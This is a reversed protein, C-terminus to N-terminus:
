RRRVLAIRLTGWALLLAGLPVLVSRLPPVAGTMTCNAEFLDQPCGQYNALWRLDDINDGTWPKEYHDRLNKNNKEMKLERVTTPFHWRLVPEVERDKGRPNERQSRIDSVDKVEWVINGSAETVRGVVLGKPASAYDIRQGTTDIAYSFDKGEQATSVRESVANGFFPSLGSPDSETVPNGRAYTYPSLSWPDQPDPWLPDRTLFRGTFSDYWRARMWYLGSAGEQFVGWEGVWTFPQHHPGEHRVLAGYPAYAYTDTVAGDEGTLFRTTGLHDFHPFLAQPDEGPNEVLYVLKGDPAYVYFRVFHGNEKEAVLPRGPLAQHYFYETVGDPGQRRAVQGLATYDFSVGLGSSPMQYNRLRDAADWAYSREPDATRRGRADFTFGAATIKGAADHSWTRMEGVLFDKVDSPLREALATIQAAEDRSLELDWSGHTIRIITGDLNRGLTTSVGNSRSIRTVQGDDNRAFEMWGSSRDDTVRFLRGAADYTYGVTMSGGYTMQILRYRRDWSAGFTEGGMRTSTVLDRDEYQIEVPVSATKTLRGLADYTYELKLGDSFSRQTLRGEADYTRNEGTGGPYEIRELRGLPDYAYTWKAGLPDQIGTLRGMKTYTFSWQNKEQDTITTVKGLGNRAYAAEGLIPLVVKTLQGNGDYTLETKRGLPDSIKVPRQLADREIGFTEGAATTLTSPRGMANPTTGYRRGLPTKMETVVSTADRALEWTKGAEDVFGTNWTNEDYRMRRIAGDPFTTTELGGWWTHAYTASNGAPDTLRVLRDMSDYGYRWRQNLGGADRVVETRNGNADYAFTTRVGQRDVVEVLRDMADFSQSQFTGDAYTIRALRHSEDYAYTVLGTDDDRVSAVTGDRHYTFTTIGGTPNKARVVQGLPDYEWEWVHGNRDTRKVINGRPDREVAEHTGDAYDIRRVDYFTFTVSQAPLGPVSFTQQRAEYTFTTKRGAGDTYSALKGSPAHYEVKTSTGLRDKEETIQFSGNQQFTQTRGKADTFAKPAQFAGWHEYVVTAGDPRTETVRHLNDDYALRTTHGLADTQFVVRCGGSGPDKLDVSQTVPVTGRPLTVKTVAVDVFGLAACDFVIEGGAPDTIRQPVFPPNLAGGPKQWALSVERGDQWQNNRWVREVVKRLRSRYGFPAQEGEEAELRLRRDWSAGGGEYISLPLDPTLESPYEYTLRRGNRDLVFLLRSLRMGSINKGPAFVYVREEPVDLVFYHREEYPVDSAARFEFRRPGPVPTWTKEPTGDPSNVKAQVSDGTREMMLKLTQDEDFWHEMYAHFSHFFGTGRERDGDLHYSLDYGLPIPGGLSLLPYTAFFSGTDARIPDGVELAPSSGRVEERDSDSARAGLPCMLLSIGLIWTLGKWFLSGKAGSWLPDKRDRSSM